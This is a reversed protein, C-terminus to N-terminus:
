QSAQYTLISPNIQIIGQVMTNPTAGLDIVTLYAYITTNLYRIARTVLISELITSLVPTYGYSDWVGDFFTQPLGTGASTINGSNIDGLRITANCTPLGTTPNVTGSITMPLLPVVTSNSTINQNINTVSLATAGPARNSSEKSQLALAITLAKGPHKRVFKLVPKVIKLGSKYLVLLSQLTKAGYSLTDPSITDEMLDNSTPQHKPNKVKKPAVKRTSAKQSAMKKAVIKPTAQSKAQYSESELNRPLEISAASTSTVSTAMVIFMMGVVYWEKLWNTM